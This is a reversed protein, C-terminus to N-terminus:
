LFPKAQSELKEGTYNNRIDRQGTTRTFQKFRFAQHYKPEIEVM